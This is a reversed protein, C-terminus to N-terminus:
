SVRRVPGYGELGGSVRVPEPDGRLILNYILTSKPNMTEPPLHVRGGDVTPEAAGGPATKLAEGFRASEIVTRDSFYLEVPETVRDGAVLDETMNFLGFRGLYVDSGAGDGLVSELEPFRDKLDQRAKALPTAVWEYAYGPPPGAAELLEARPRRLHMWLLLGIILALIAVGSGSQLTIPIDM